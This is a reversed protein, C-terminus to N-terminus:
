TRRKLRETRVHIGHKRFFSALKKAELPNGECIVSKCGDADLLEYKVYKFGGQPGVTWVVDVANKLTEWKKKEREAEEALYQPDIIELGSWHIEHTGADRFDVGIFDDRARSWMGIQGVTYGEAGSVLGPHYQTLDKILRVKIRRDM